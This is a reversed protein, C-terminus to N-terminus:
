PIKPVELGPPRGILNSPAATPPGFDPPTPNFRGRRFVLDVEQREPLTKGEARDFAVRMAKRALAEVNREVVATAQGTSAPSPGSRPQVFGGTPLYTKSKAEKRISPGATIGSDDDAVIISVKPDAKIAADAAKVADATNDSTTVAASIRTKAAKLADTLAATREASSEDPTADQLFLASGDAPAGYKKADELLADVLKKASPGFPPFTVLTYPSGSKPADVPRGLLVIPTKKQDVDALALVTEDSGDAVVVLAAAGDAVAKKILEAQKNKPDSSSPRLTQFIVKLNGAELRCVADYFLIDPNDEAPLILLIEKSRQPNSQSIATSAKRSAKPPVFSDSDCGLLPTSAIFLSLLLRHRQVWRRM